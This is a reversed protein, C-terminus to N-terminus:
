CSTEKVEELDLRCKSFTHTPELRSSRRKSDDNVSHKRFINKRRLSELPWQPFQVYQTDICGQTFHYCNEICSAFDYLEPSGVDMLNVLFTVEM